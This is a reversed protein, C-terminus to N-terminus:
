KRASDIFKLLKLLNESNTEKFKKSFNYVTKYTLEYKIAIRYLSLRGEKIEKYVNYAKLLGFRVNHFPTLYTPKFKRKCVNCISIYSQSYDRSKLLQNTFSCDMCGYVPSFNNQVYELVEVDSKLEPLNKM